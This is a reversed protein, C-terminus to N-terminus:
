QCSEEVYNRACCFLLVDVFYTNDLYFYIIVSCHFISLYFFFMKLVEVSCALYIGCKMGVM